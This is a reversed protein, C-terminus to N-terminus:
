VSFMLNFSWNPSRPISSLVSNFLINYYHPTAINVTTFQTLSFRFVPTVLRMLEYELEKLLPLNKVTLQILALHQLYFLFLFLLLLLICSVPVNRVNLFGATTMGNESLLISRPYHTLSKLVHVKCITLKRCRQNGNLVSKNQRLWRLMVRRASMLVSM